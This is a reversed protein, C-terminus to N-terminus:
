QKKNDDKGKNDEQLPIIEVKKPLLPLIVGNNKEYGAVPMNSQFGAGPVLCPMNDPSMAYIGDGKENQGLYKGKIPTRVVGPDEQREQNNSFTQKTVPMINKLKDSLLRKRKLEEVPNKSLEFKQAKVAISCLIAIPVLLLYKM